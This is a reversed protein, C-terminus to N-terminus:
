GAFVEKLPIMVFDRTQMLPHPIKLEPTDIRVDDYLLIDIDIIRDHYHGDHSKLKRGLDKEIQQTMLLLEKPSLTTKCGVVVNVFDNPSQFGQPASYYFSSRAMVTGVRKGILEIAKNVNGEKDGLNSGIGLYIM